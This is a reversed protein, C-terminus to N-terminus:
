GRNSTQKSSKNSKPYDNVLSINSLWACLNQEFLLAKLSAQWLLVNRKLLLHWCEWIDPHMTRPTKKKKEEAKKWFSSFAKSLSNQNFQREFAQRSAYIDFNQIPFIGIQFVELTGDNAMMSISAIELPPSSQNLRRPWFAKVERERLSKACHSSSQTCFWDNRLRKHARRRRSKQKILLCINPIVLDDTKVYLFSLRALYMSNNTYRLSPSAAMDLISFCSKTLFNGM